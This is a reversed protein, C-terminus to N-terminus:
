GSSSAIRVPVSSVTGIIPEVAAAIIAPRTDSCVAVALLARPLRTRRTLGDVLPTCIYAIVGAVVFPLLVFRLLYVLVALAALTLVIVRGDTGRWPAVEPNKPEPSNTM